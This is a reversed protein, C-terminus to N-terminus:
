FFTIEPAPAAAPRAAGHHTDVQDQMTYSRELRALWAAVDIPPPAAAGAGAPGLERGMRAMDDIVHGLVQSVRDQFQLAVLTQAVSRQIAESELRLAQTRRALADSAAAFGDLVRGITHGAADATRADSRSYDRAVEAIGDIAQEVAAAKATIQRATDGSQRALLRVEHAVVAFGRGNEGARAAEIAANIALLNTQQAIAAVGSAMAKLEATFATLQEISQLMDLKAAVTDRLSAVLRTLEDHSSALVGAMDRGDGAPADDALAVASALRDYMEAFQRSLAGIAEETQRRASDVHRSWVPVVERCLATVAGPAGGGRAAAGTGACLAFARCQLLCAGAAAAFLSAAAWPSGNLAPWAAATAGAGLTWALAAHRARRASAQRRTGPPRPAADDRAAAQDTSPDKDQM